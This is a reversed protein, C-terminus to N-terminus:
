APLLVHLGKRVADLASPNQSTRSLLLAGEIASLLMLALAAADRPARGEDELASAIIQTWAVFQSDAANRISDSSAAAEMALPAIPCGELGGTAELQQALLQIWRDLGARVSTARDLVAKLSSGVQGGTQGVVAVALQEKGAPFHHYLSGNFASSASLLQKVGTAAYGQRQFLKAADAILRERVNQSM